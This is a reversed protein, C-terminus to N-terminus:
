PGPFEKLAGLAASGSVLATDVYMKRISDLGTQPAGKIMFDYLSRLVPTKKDKQAYGHIAVFGRSEM